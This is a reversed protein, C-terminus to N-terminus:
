GHNVSLCTVLIYHGVNELSFTFKRQFTLVCCTWNSHFVDETHGNGYPNEAEVRGGSRWLTMTCKHVEQCNGLKEGTKRLGPKGWLKLFSRLLAQIAATHTSSHPNQWGCIAAMKGNGKGGWM